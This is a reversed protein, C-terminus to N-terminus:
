WMIIFLINDARVNARNRAHSYERIMKGSSGRYKVYHKRVTAAVMGPEASDASCTQLRRRHVRVGACVYATWLLGTHRREILHSDKIYPYPYFPMFIHNPFVRWRRRARVTWRNHVSWFARIKRRNENCDSRRMASTVSVIYGFEFILVSTDEIAQGTYALHTEFKPFDASM